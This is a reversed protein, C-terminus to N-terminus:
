EETSLEDVTLCEDYTVWTWSSGTDVVFYIPQKESGIQIATEFFSNLYHYPVV